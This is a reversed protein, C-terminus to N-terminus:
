YYGGDHKTTVKLRQLKEVKYSPFDDLCYDRFDGFFAFFFCFFDKFIELFNFFFFILIM